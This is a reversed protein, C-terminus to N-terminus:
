RSVISILMNYWIKSYKDIAKRYVVNLFTKSEKGHWGAVGRGGLSEEM